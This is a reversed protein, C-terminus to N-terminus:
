VLGTIRIKTLRYSYNDSILKNSYRALIEDNWISDSAAAPLIRVNTVNMSKLLKNACEAEEIVFRTPVAGCPLPERKQSSLQCEQIDIRLKLTVLVNVVLLVIICVALAAQWSPNRRM